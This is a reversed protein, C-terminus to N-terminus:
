NIKKRINTGWGLKKRLLDYFNKNKFRVLKASFDAKKIEVSNGHKIKSIPQGDASVLSDSEKSLAVIKITKNDPLIIPREALTHPCVPTLLLIKMTPMAIPGGASLSYGTSGTPTSVLLGDAMYTNFYEEDIFIDLEILRSFGSKDVVIDNLSFFTQSHKARITGELLMREEIIYDGRLILDLKEFLEEVAVEALFGLRGLNVGMIPKETRGIFNVTSLITGDGGFSIIMDCNELLKEKELVSVNALSVKIKKSLEIPIITEVKRESFWELLKPIVEWIKDKTINGIIGFVM